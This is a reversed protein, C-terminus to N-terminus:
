WKLRARKIGVGEKERAINKKDNSAFKEEKENTLLGGLSRCIITQEHAIDDMQTESCVIHQENTFSLM